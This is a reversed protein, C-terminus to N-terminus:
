DHKNLSLIAQYLGLLAAFFSVVKVISAVHVISGYHNYVWKYMPIWIYRSRRYDHINEMVIAFRSVTDPLHKGVTKFFTLIEKDTQPGCLLGKSRLTHVDEERVMFMDLLALYSCVATRDPDDGFRSATSVEFAAMNVLCSARADSLSLPALSLESCFRGRVFGMDSFAATQSGKLKIGIEELEMPPVTPMVTFRHDQEEEQAQPPAATTKERKLRGYGNSTDLLPRRREDDGLAATTTAPLAAQKRRGQTKYRRVLALLHPPPDNQDDWEWVSAPKNKPHDDSAVGGVASVKFENGMGAIFEGVATMLYTKHEERVLDMLAQIVPWPLQNELLMIDNNISDRNCFLFRRMSPNVHYNEKKGRSSTYAVMYLLLFCADCLMMAVFSSGQDKSGAAAGEAAEMAVDVVYRGRAEKVAESAEMKELAAKPELEVLECLYYVAAAKVEAMNNLEDVGKHYPGIAVFRPVVYSHYGSQELMGKLGAPFKYMTTDMKRFNFEAEFKDKAGVVKENITIAVSEM